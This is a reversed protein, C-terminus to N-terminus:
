IPCQYIQESGHYPLLTTMWWTGEAWNPGAGPLCYGDNDQIYTLTAMTLQRENNICQINRATERSQSLMPLLLAILLAIVAIVVLLEILTFGCHTSM